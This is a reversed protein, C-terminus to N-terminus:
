VNAGRVGRSLGADFTRQCGSLQRVQHYERVVDKLNFRHIDQGRTDLHRDKVSFDDVLFAISLGRGTPLFDNSLSAIAVRAACSPM